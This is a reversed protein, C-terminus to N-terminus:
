ERERSLKETNLGDPERKVPRSDVLAVGGLTQVHLIPVGDLHELLLGAAPAPAPGPPPGLGLM